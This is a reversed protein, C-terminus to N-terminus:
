KTAASWAAKGNHVDRYCSTKDNTCVFAILTYDIAGAPKTPASKSTVVFGTLGENLDKRVLTDNDFSLGDHTKMQLKWPGELNIHLGSTPLIKFTLELNAGKAATTVAVSSHKDPEAAKCTHPFVAALFAAIAPKSMNFM